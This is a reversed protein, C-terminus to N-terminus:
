SRIYTIVLSRSSVFENEDSQEITGLEVEADRIDAHTGALDHLVEAIATADDLAKLYAAPNDAYFVLLEVEIRHEDPCGIHDEARVSGGALLNGARNGRKHRQHGIVIRIADIDNVVDSLATANVQDRVHEILASTKM